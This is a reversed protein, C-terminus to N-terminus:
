NIAELYSILEINNDTALTLKENIRNIIHRYQKVNNVKFTAYPLDNAKAEINRLRELYDDKTNENM